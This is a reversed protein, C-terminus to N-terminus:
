DFNLLILNEMMSNTIVVPSTPTLNGFEGTRTYKKLVFPLGKSYIADPKDCIQFHLHPETSNGSNGLLAVPQGEKVVDGKNVLFSAPICHCYIAYRQNGLDLILYNGGYEDLSNFTIDRANGHNEPRGDVVTLVSGNAVAYLTDGYNYYSENKKPDGKVSYQTEDLQLNDFAYKDGSHILGNVFFTSNYHYGMTSLNIFMWGTGKVPSLITMPSETNRPSFLGGEVIVENKTITDQLIFRHSVNAPVPQGLPIPLQVSLYYSSIKDQSIFPVEELPNSKFHGFSEEGIIMLEAKTDNDIVIIRQLMLGDKMFEWMKLMYGIRFYKDTPIPIDNIIVEVKSPQLEETKVKKCGAVSIALILCAMLSRTTKM